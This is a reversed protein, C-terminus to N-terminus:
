PIKKTGRWEKDLTGCGLLPEGDWSGQPFGRTFIEVTKGDNFNLKWLMYLIRGQYDEMIEQVTLRRHYVDNDLQIYSRLKWKRSVGPPFEVPLVVEDGSELQEKTEYVEGRGFLQMPNRLEGIESDKVALDISVLSVARGGVNSVLIDGYPLALARASYYGYVAQSCPRLRVLSIESSLVAHINSSNSERILDNSSQALRNADEATQQALMTFFCSLLTGCFAVALSIMSIIDSRDLPERVKKM